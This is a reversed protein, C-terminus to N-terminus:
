SLVGRNRMTVAYVLLLIAVAWIAINMIVIPTGGMVAMGDTLVFNYITALALGLLSLAFMWVAWGGKRLLLGISGLVAAWVGLPWAIDVWLPFAEIHAIQEPSLNAVYWEAGTRTMLYDFAGFANWILSVIGVVWLHWPTRMGVTVDSM